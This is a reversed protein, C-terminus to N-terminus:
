QSVVPAYNMSVTPDIQNRGAVHHYKRQFYINVNFVMYCYIRQPGITDVVGEDIIEFIIRNKRMDKDISKRWFDTGTKKDIDLSQSVLKPTKIGCKHKHIWYRFNMNEIIKYRKGMVDSVWWDFAIEHTVKNGM